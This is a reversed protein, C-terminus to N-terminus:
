SAEALAKGNERLLGAGYAPHDTLCLADAAEERGIRHDARRPLDVSPPDGCGGYVKDWREAPLAPREEVSDIGRGRRPTAKHLLDGQGGNDPEETAPQDTFRQAQREM